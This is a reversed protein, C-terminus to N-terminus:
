DNKKISINNNKAWVEFNMKEWPMGKDFREMWPYAEKGDKTKLFRIDRVAKMPNGFVFTGEKVNRSVFTGAGVLSFEGVIVGPLIIAGSAIVAFKKVTSGFWTGSPPNPDNTMIVKPFIWVYDEIIANESVVIDSHLSVYNGIKAGSLLLTNIGIRTNDGIILNERIVVKHGTQFNEGINSSHYIITHSRIIAKEGIITKKYKPNFYNIGIEGLTVYAGVYSNSGLEVGNLIRAYDDIKVNDGITVEDKIIVGYGISVNKGIKAKSSIMKEM